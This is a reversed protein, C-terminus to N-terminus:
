EGYIAKVQERIVDTITPISEIDGRETYSIEETKGKNLLYIKLTKGKDRGRKVHNIAMQIAFIDSHTTLFLRKDEREVLDYLYDAVRVQAGAHLNLEPEEIILFRGFMSLIHVPLVQAYGSSILPLPIREGKEYVELVFPEVVKCKLNFTSISIEEGRLIRMANMLSRVFHRIAPKDSVKSLKDSLKDISIYTSIYGLLNSIVLNRETPLIEASKFKKFFLGLVLDALASALTEKKMNELLEDLKKDSPGLAETGYYIEIKFDGRSTQFTKAGIFGIPINAIETFSVFVEPDKYLEIEAKFDKGLVIKLNGVTEDTFTIRSEERGITILENFKVGFLDDFREKLTRSLVNNIMDLYSSLNFKGSPITKLDDPNASPRANLVSYLMFSLFSKGSANPGIVVTVDGLEFDADEIPGFNVVKVKM